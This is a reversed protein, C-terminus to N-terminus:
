QWFTFFLAIAALLDVGIRKKIISFYVSIVIPIFGLLSLIELVDNIFQKDFINFLNALLFVLLVLILVVDFAIRWDLIYKLISSYKKM